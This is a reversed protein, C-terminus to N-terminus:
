PQTRTYDAIQNVTFDRMSGGNLYCKQWDVITSLAAVLPLKPYWLLRENAKSSDLRLCSAEHPKPKLDTTWSGEGWLLIMQEVIWKVTKSDENKPGFNWAESFKDGSSSCLKEALGLYGSLPDLVHQWPRIANPNRVQICEKKEIAEIINPVIRDKSWDGGGIVNGARVTAISAPHGKPGYFSSRFSSTVLETCAKSNSYPDFGGLRDNERYAWHWENNEYCKDTTVVVVAEVTPCERVANLLTATGVVNTAYTEIPNTYSKRVFAQAALHFVVSPQAEIISKKVLYEDRIDGFVSRMPGGVQAVEFLNPSDLPPLAYGTVEAGLDQLWLSLWSGKFGTHGTVFVKRGRWFKLNVELKEM